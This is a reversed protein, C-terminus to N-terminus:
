WEKVTLSWVQAGELGSPVWSSGDFRFVGEGFTGAIIAERTTAIAHVTPIPIDGNISHWAAAYTGIAYSWVGRSGAAFITDNRYAIGYTSMTPYVSGPRADSNTYESSPFWLPGRDAALVRGYRGITFYGRPLRTELQYSWTVGDDYSVYIADAGSATLEGSQEIRDIRYLYRQKLMGEPNTWTEGGDESRWFGFATAAYVRRPDNQDVKVDLVERVRWDTVIKWTAGGDTTRHIGNGAAIYLIMGRSSDVADMAFAKLNDPGLHEWTGGNDTSRFLGSSRTSSGALQKPNGIVVAYVTEAPASEAPLLLAALLIIITRASIASITSM